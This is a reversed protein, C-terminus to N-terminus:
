VETDRTLLAATVIGATAYAGTAAKLLARPWLQPGKPIGARRGDALSDYIRDLYGAASTWTSGNWYVWHNGLFSPCADFKTGHVASYRIPIIAGRGAAILTVLDAFPLNYRPTLTVGYLRKAAKVLEPGSTGGAGKDAEIVLAIMRARIYAPTPLWLASNPKVGRRDREIASSLSGPGCNNGAHPSGDLQKHFAPRYTM